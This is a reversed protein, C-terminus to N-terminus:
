LISFESGDRPSGASTSALPRRWVRVGGLRVNFSAGRAEVMVLDLSAGDGVLSQSGIFLGQQLCRLVVGHQRPGLVEADWWRLLPFVISGDGGTWCKRELADVEGRGGISGHIIILSLSVDLFLDHL